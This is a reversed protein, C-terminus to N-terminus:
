KPCVLREEHYLVNNSASLGSQPLTIFEIYMTLAANARLIGRLRVVTDTLLRISFNKNSRLNAIRCSRLDGPNVAVATSISAKPMPAVM